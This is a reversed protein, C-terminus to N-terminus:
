GFKHASYQLNKQWQETSMNIFPAHGNRSFVQPNQILLNVLPRMMEQVSRRPKFGMAASLKESSIGLDRLDGHVDSTTVAALKGKGIVECAEGYFRFKTHNHHGANYVGNPPVKGGAMAAYVDVLDDIDIVARHAFQNDIEMGGVTMLQYVFQNPLLDLRMRPSLGGVTAPRLIVYRFDPHEEALAEIAKESLFKTQCYTDLDDLPPIAADESAPEEPNPQLKYISSSSPYIFTTPYNHTAVRQVLQATGGFNNAMARVPDANCAPNGVIEALHFVLDVDHNLAFELRKADNVDGKIFQFHESDVFPKVPDLLAQRVTIGENLMRNVRSLPDSGYMLSDYVMVNHGDRVLRHTLASGIYGAGGTILIDAM